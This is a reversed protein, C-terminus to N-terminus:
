RNPKVALWAPNTMKGPDRSAIKTDRDTPRIMSRKPLPPMRRKTGSSTSVAVTSNARNAPCEHIATMNTYIIILRAKVVSDLLTDM